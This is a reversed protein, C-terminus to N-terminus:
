RFIASVSEPPETNLLTLSKLRSGEKSYAVRNIASHIEKSGAPLKEANQYTTLFMQWTRLAAPANEGKGVWRRGGQSASLIGDPELRFEGLPAPAQKYLRVLVAGDASRAFVADATIAFGHGQWRVLANESSKPQFTALERRTACGVLLLALALVPLAKM